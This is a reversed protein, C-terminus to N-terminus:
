IQSRRQQGTHCWLQGYIAVIESTMSAIQESDMATVTEDINNNVATLKTHLSQLRKRLDDPLDVVPALVLHSAAKLFRQKLSGERVLEAVARSVNERAYNFTSM